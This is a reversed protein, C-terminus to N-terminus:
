SMKQRKGGRGGKQFGGRRKHGGAARVKNAKRRNKIDELSQKLFADEEEGELVRVDVKDGKVEFSTIKEEMLKKAAGETNFRSM